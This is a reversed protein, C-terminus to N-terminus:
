LRECGYVYAASAVFFLVALFLYLIDTMPLDLHLVAGTLCSVQDMM